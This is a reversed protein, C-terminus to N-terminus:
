ALTEIIKLLHQYFKAVSKVNVKEEPSHPHKLDPGFSIMDMGPFKEGIIGCELGAHIASYVAKKGTVEKYTDMTVKLLPSDLNPMWGPYGEPQEVKVGTMHAIAALKDRTARLAASNSSRSSCLIVAKAASSKIAAVNNSTEVLGKMGRSMALPGHPLAFILGLLTEMSQPELVKPVKGKLEEITLEIKNEVPKFETRIEEIAKELWSKTKGLDKKRVVIEAFAERPIANHKDGGNFSVLELKVERSLQWLLRNLIKVANGRGEHIDIGSHGGRLGHIHLYLVKDGKAETRKLPLALHTDAGGACGISFNGLEESDLNLLIRGHLLDSTLARAGNLGREEDVTFVAELPGHKLKDDELVALAAALGIGNDAGLTTGDAHLWEGDLLLTIPDKDFNHKSTSHKENVMDLHGQLVIGPSKEHGPTAKKYIVVNGEKDRIGKLGLDKAVKLVYDGAAKEDGSGRPIKSIEDFYKWLSKPELHAVVSM